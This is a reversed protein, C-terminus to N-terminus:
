LHELLSGFPPQQLPVHSGGTFHIPVCPHHHYPRYGVWKPNASPAFTRMLLNMGVSIDYWCHGDTAMSLLPPPPALILLRSRQNYFFHFDKQYM